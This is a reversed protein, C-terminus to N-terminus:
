LRRLRQANQISTTKSTASSAPHAEAAAGGALSGADAHNARAADAQRGSMTVTSMPASARAGCSGSAVASARDGSAPPHM